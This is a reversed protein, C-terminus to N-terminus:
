YDFKRKQLYRFVKSSEKETKQRSTKSTSINVRYESNKCFKLTKTKLCGFEVMEEATDLKPGIM